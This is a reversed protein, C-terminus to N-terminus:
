SLDMLSEVYAPHTLISLRKVILACITALLHILMQLWVEALVMERAANMSQLLNDTM